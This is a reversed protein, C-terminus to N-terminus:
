IHYLFNRNWLEMPERIFIGNEFYVSKFGVKIKLIGRFGSFVVYVPIYLFRFDCLYGWIFIMEGV